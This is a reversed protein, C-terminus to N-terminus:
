CDWGEVCGGGYVIQCIDLAASCSSTNIYTLFNICGEEGMTGLRYCKYSAYGGRLTLLEENKMLKEPSIQLKTLKKM